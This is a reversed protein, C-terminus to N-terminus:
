ESKVLRVYDLGVFSKQVASPNTGTIRIVLKHAGASLAGLKHEIVGTTTVKAFQYLDLPPGLDKGDLALQVIAFDPARTFVAELTDAGAAPATIELELSDGTKGGTWFLQAGGSWRGGAFNKMNQTKATGATARASAVLTEGEIAGPVRAIIEDSPTPKGIAPSQETIPLPKPQASQWEAESVSKVRHLLVHAGKMGGALIDPLKDGNV